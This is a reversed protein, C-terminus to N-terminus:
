GNTTESAFTFIIDALKNIENNIYHKSGNQDLLIEKLDANTPTLHNGNLEILKTEDIDRERLLKLLIKSQDLKDNSFKILLNRPQIYNNSIIQMTKSPSPSFETEIKLKKKVKSLLPISKDIKFNNFSIGIFLNSKRGGDPAILHLKCGLSHGVRITNLSVNGIRTELKLRCKRLDKWAENAQAQHDLSPIYSWAHVAINKRNLYHLLTKYSLNPTASLYSGGIMEVLTTPKPPWSCWTNDIRRWQAM